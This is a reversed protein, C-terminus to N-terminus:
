AGKSERGSFEFEMQGQGLIPERGYVDIGVASDRYIGFHLHIFMFQTGNDDEWRSRM